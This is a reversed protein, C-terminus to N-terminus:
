FLVGGLRLGLRLPSGLPGSPRGSCLLLAGPELGTDLDLLVLLWRASVSLLEDAVPLIGDGMGSPIVGSCYQFRRPYGGEDCAPGDELEEMGAGLGTTVPRAGLGEVSSLCIVRTACGM